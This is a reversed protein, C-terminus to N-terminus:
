SFLEVNGETKKNIIFYAKGDEPKIYIDANELSEETNGQDVWWKKVKEFLDEERTEKGQYQLLVNMQASKKPEEKECVMAKKTETETEKRKAMKKNMRRNAM